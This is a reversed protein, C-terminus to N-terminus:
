IAIALSLNSRYKNMENFIHLGIEPEVCNRLVQRKNKLSYASLDYGYRKELDPIQAKRLLDTEFKKDDVQFNGWYLHRQLTFDPAILPEYYPRVNEVCWLGKFNYKLFIIEQYLKMDPYVAETGRFRVALNQRMQSHSQCPPSAWIFDFKNYHQMLYDHADGVVVTDNPFNDKYIGAIGRNFEVATVAVNDGWLKRNGGIGAYLNLIRVLSVGATLVPKACGTPSTCNELTTSDFLNM